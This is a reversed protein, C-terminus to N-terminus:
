FLLKQKLALKQIVEILKNCGTHSNGIFFVRISRKPQVASDASGSEADRSGRLGLVAVLCTMLVITFTRM